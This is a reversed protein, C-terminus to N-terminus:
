RWWTTKALDVVEDGRGSLVAKVVFLGFKRVMDLDISPPLVIEQRAVTCEVLAPGPHALAQAIAPRVQEPSTVRLGLLGAATALAAFDPNVLDTAFDLFGASKMELGVFALSDNKFVIVKVPLAHQKLTLLEGLLMGLGGDGSM